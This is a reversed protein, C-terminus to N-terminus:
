CIVPPPPDPFLESEPPCDFVFDAEAVLPERWGQLPAAYVRFTANARTEFTNQVLPQPLNIIGTVPHRDMDLCSEALAARARSLSLRLQLRLLVDIASGAPTQEIDNEQQRTAAGADRYVDLQFEYRMQQRVIECGDRRLLGTVPDVSREIEVIPASVPQVARLWVTGYQGAPLGTEAQDPRAGNQWGRVWPVGTIHRFFRVLRETIADEFNAIPQEACGFALMATLQSDSAGTLSQLDAFAPIENALSM